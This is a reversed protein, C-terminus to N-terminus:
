GISCLSDFTDGDKGIRQEIDAPLKGTKVGNLLETYDDAITKVAARVNDHKAKAAAANLKDVTAQLSAADSGDSGNLIADKGATCGPDLQTSNAAVAVGAGIGGMILVSIILGAIALGRGKAKGAGTRFVAILSLIFGLPAILFALIFGSIALGSTGRQPPAPPPVQSEPQGSEPQGSEPQGSEPQGPPPPLQADLSMHM